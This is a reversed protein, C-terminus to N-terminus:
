EDRDLKVHALRGSKTIKHRGPKSKHLTHQRCAEYKEGIAKKGQRAESYHGKNVIKVVHSGMWSWQVDEPKGERKPCEERDLAIARWRWTEATVEVKVGGGAKGKSATHQRGRKGFICEKRTRSGLGKTKGVDRGV